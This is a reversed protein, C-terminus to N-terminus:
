SWDEPVYASSDDILELTWNRNFSWWSEKDFSEYGMQKQFSKDPYITVTASAHNYIKVVGEGGFYRPSPGSVVRVRDGVSFTM